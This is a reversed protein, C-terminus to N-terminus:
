MHGDSLWASNWTLDGRGCIWDDRYDEVVEGSIMSFPENWSRARIVCGLKRGFRRVVPEHSFCARAESEDADAGQNNIVNEERKQLDDAQWGRILTSSVVAARHCFKVEVM